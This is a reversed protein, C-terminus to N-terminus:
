GRLPNPFQFESWDHSPLPGHEEIFDDIPGSDWNIERFVFESLSRHPFLSRYVYGFMADAPDDFGDWASVMLTGILQGRRHVLSAGLAFGLVHKAEIPWEEAYSVVLRDLIRQAGSM